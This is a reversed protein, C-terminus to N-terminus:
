GNRCLLLYLAVSRTEHIFELVVGLRLFQVIEQSVGIIVGDLVETLLAERLIRVQGFRTPFAIDLIIISARHHLACDLAMDAM